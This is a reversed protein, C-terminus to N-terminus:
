SALNRLVKSLVAIGADVQEPSSFEDPRHSYGGRSPIFVMTTPAIQAMFLADHYARSIMPRYTLGAERAAGSALAVLEPACTAPIDENITEVSYSLGRANCISGTRELLAAWVASRVSLDTDRLDIGLTVKAPISNIAGPHVAVTGVTAVTDESGSERALQELALAIEAAGSFADHRAPMVVAGAHGGSGTIAIRYSAPAAISTVIGIDLSEAELEPGQEIHLEVFAGYHGYELRVSDLPGSFGARERWERLTGGNELSEDAAATLSGAMLRSGLCGIGFRTPEEATFAILEIPRAPQFGDRRLERIAALGGLVGVVGDYRGANPIADIHSGTAVPAQSPDRGEWRYFSNGVADCRHSLGEAECLERLYRRAEIDQPSYVVRTVAPPVDETITALHAIEDHHSGTM